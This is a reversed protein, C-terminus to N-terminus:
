GVFAEIRSLINEKFEENNINDFIPNFFGRIILFKADKEKIGRSMLYYLQEEDVKGITAGHGASELDPEDIILLPDVRAQANESLMIAKLSQNSSSGKCGAKMTANCLVNISSNDICLSYHTIDVSSVEGVNTAKIHFDKKAKKAAFSVIYNMLTTNRETLEAEIDANIDNDGADVMYNNLTSGEKLDISDNFDIKEDLLKVVRTAEVNNAVTTKVSVSKSITILIHCNKAITVHTNESIDIIADKDIVLDKFKAM